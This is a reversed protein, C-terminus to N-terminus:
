ADGDIQGSDKTGGPGTAKEKRDNRYLVFEANEAIRHEEVLRSFQRFRAEQLLTDYRVM